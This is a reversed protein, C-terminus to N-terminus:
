RPRCSVSAGTTSSAAQVGEPTGEAEYARYAVVTGRGACLMEEFPILFGHVLNDLDKGQISAGRVAVDLAVFSNFPLGRRARRFTEIQRGVEEAWPGSTGEEQGRLPLLFVAGQRKRLTWHFRQLPLVRHIRRTAKPLPGPRDIDVLTGDRLKEEELSRIIELLHEGPQAARDRERRLQVLKSEGRM